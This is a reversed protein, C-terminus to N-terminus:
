KGNPYLRVWVEFPKGTEKELQAAYGAAQKAGRHINRLSMPKDEVVIRKEVNYFDPKKGNKLAANKIWTGIGDRSLESPPIAKNHVARGTATAATEGGRTAKTLSQATSGVTSEEQVVTKAAGALFGSAGGVLAGGLVGMATYFGTLAAQASSMTALATGVVGLKWTPLGNSGPISIPAGSTFYSSALNVKALGFQDGHLVANNGAYTYLNLDDVYGVPDPQLFRGISASYYRNKM